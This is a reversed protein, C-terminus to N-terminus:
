YKMRFFVNGVDPLIDIVMTNNTTSGVVDVWNNSIGITNSNTQSQLTWGTYDSPWTLTLKGGNVSYTMNTPTTPILPTVSAVTVRGNSAVTNNWTYKVKNVSDTTQLAYGAFGSVGAAFLQFSDGAQLTTGVNTVALIGGATFTGNVVLSDHTPSGTRSVDMLLTGQLTANNSITLIGISDGPNVVSNPGAVLSGNLGGSGKLTQNANLTLTQDLRGIVDLIAGSDVAIVTANSFSGSGTVLSGDPYSGTAEALALTGAQIAITGTCTSDGSTTFTGTGAKTLGLPQTGGDIFKGIFVPPTNNDSGLTLTAAATGSNNAVVPANSTGNSTSITVDNLNPVSVNNGNLELRALGKMNIAGVGFANANLARVTTLTPATFSGFYDECILTEGYSNVGTAPGVQVTGGLYELTFNNGGDSINGLVTGTGDGGITANASLTIPGAWANGLRLAGKGRPSDVNSGPGQGAITLPNGNTLGGVHSYYSGFGTGDSEVVIPGGPTASLTGVNMRTYPKVVTTGTFGSNTATSAYNISRSSGASFWLINTGNGGMNHGLTVDGNGYFNCILNNTAGVIITGGLRGGNGSTTGDGLQLNGGLNTTFGAWTSYDNTIILEGDGNHVFRGRGVLTTPLFFQSDVRSFALTGNSNVVLNCALAGEYGNMGVQVTGQQITLSGINDNATALILTGSNTKTISMSGTLKGTGSFVYDKTASITVLGPNLDATLNVNTVLGTDNFTVNDLNTFTKSNNGADRWNSTVQVDWDASVDGRWTLDAATSAMVELMIDNGNGAGADFTSGDARYSIRFQSAGIMFTAGQSLDTPVGNLSGFIGINSAEATGPVQVITFKSGGVPVYGVDITLQLNASNNSFTGSGGIVIQDYGSGPATGGLHMDLASTADTLNVNNTITLIGTSEAFAGTNPNGGGGRTYLATGSLTGGPSISGNLGVNVNGANIVGSGGLCAKAGSSSGIVTYDGGGTNAGNVLLRTAYTSNANGNTVVTEGTYTNTGGLRWFTNESSNRVMVSLAGGGSGNRLTGDFAGARARSGIGVQLQVPGIASGNEVIADFLNAATTRLMPIGEYDPLGSANTNRVQFLAMNNMTVDARYDSSFQQAPGASVLTGGADIQAGHGIPGGTSACLVVRANTGISTIQGNYGSLTQALILSNNNSGTVSYYYNWLRKTNLISGGAVNWRVSRNNQMEVDFTQLNASLNTVGPSGSNQGVYLLNGTITFAGATSPFLISYCYFSTLDNNNNLGVSGDFVLTDGNVPIAAAGDWNAPNSWNFDPDGGGTWTRTAAQTQMSLAMACAGAVVLGLKHRQTHLKPLKTNMTTNTQKHPSLTQINAVIM